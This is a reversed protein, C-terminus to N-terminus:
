MNLREAYGTMELYGQGIERESGDADHEYLRVAGEWYVAGTSARSDLEQDDMLPRLGLVRGDALYLRWEVAYRTGTRPSTWYRLPEFRLEDAAFSRASGAADGLTGAAWLAGGRAARMQFLMLSGGDHLNIGIWDWGSAGEPLIESSWEHDLWAHGDVDLIESGLRLRGSVGLQPRSYYYSANLPDPAKQSFGGRGNLLPPHAAEFRLEFGFDEADIRGHYREVGGAEARAAPAGEETAAERLLSWGDVEVRTSGSAAGALGPCARASREAHLLRGSAPDAVAAHALILQRPAFRSPNDEGILTRVRFFTLQFGREAGASDRLWGTIYWWETRYDPHAGFDRPFVLTRGPLVPPYSEAVAAPASAQAQVEAGSLLLAFVLVITSMGRLVVGAARGHGGANRM